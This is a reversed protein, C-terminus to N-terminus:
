HTVHAGSDAREVDIGHRLLHKGLRIPPPRRVRRGPHRSHTRARSGILWASQWITAIARHHPRAKGGPTVGVERVAADFHNIGPAASRSHSRRETPSASGTCVGTCHRAGEPLPTGPLRRPGARRPPLQDARRAAAARHPARLFPLRRDPDAHVGRHRPQVDVVRWSSTPLCPVHTCLYQGALRRPAAREPLRPRRGAAGALQPRRGAGARATGAAAHLRPRRRGRQAPDAIILHGGQAHTRDDWDSITVGLSGGPEAEGPGDGCWPM